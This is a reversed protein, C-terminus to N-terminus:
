RDNRHRHAQPRRCSGWLWAWQGPCEGASAVAAPPSSRAPNVTPLWREQDAMTSTSENVLASNAPRLVNLASYVQVPELPAHAAEVRGPSRDLPKPTPRGSTAEILPILQRLALLTDSLLSDGVQAAGTLFPDATIQLLETGEPLYEGPVYPYYRFVQAGIVVVLDHGRLTETVEAITM